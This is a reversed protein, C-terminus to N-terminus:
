YLEAYTSFPKVYYGADSAANMWHSSNLGSGFVIVGRQPGAEIRAYYLLWAKSIRTERKSM